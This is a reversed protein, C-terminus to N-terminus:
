RNWADEEHKCCNLAIAVHCLPTGSILINTINYKRSPAVCRNEGPQAYSGWADDPWHVSGNVIVRGSFPFGDDVKKDFAYSQAPTFANADDKLKGKEVGTIKSIEYYNGYPIQPEPSPESADTNWIAIYIREGLPSQPLYPDMVGVNLLRSDTFKNDASFNNPVMGVSSLQSWFLATECGLNWQWGPNCPSIKGDGDSHAPTGNGTALGERDASASLLDGPLGDYQQYFNQVAQDLQALDSIQSHMHSVQMLEKAALVAGTLLGVISFVIAMEVLTYGSRGGSRHIQIPKKM